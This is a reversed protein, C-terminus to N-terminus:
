APTGTNQLKIAVARRPVSLSQGLPVTTELHWGAEQAFLPGPSIQKVVLRILKARAGWGVSRWWVRDIFLPLLLRALFLFLFFVVIRHHHDWRIGVVRIRPVRVRAIVVVRRGRVVVRVLRM